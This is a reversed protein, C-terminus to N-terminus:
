DLNMSIVGNLGGQFEEMMEAERLDSPFDTLIFGDRAAPTLRLLKLPVKEKMLGELDNAKIMDRVRLFFPHNFEETNGAQEAINLIINQMSLIPVGLDISLRQSIEKDFTNPATFFAFRPNKPWRRVFVDKQNRLLTKLM